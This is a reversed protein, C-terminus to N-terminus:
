FVNKCVKCIFTIYISLIATETLFRVFFNPSKVATDSTVKSTFLPSIKPKKPAFPAPLDVVILINHPIKGGVDPVPM